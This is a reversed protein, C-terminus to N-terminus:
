STTRTQDVTSEWSGCWPLTGMAQHVGTHEANSGTGQHGTVRLWSANELCYSVPCNLCCPLFSRKASRGRGMYLAERGKPTVLSATDGPVATLTVQNAKRAQSFM